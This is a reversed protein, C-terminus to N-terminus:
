GISPKRDVKGLKDAWNEPWRKYYNRWFTKSGHEYSYSSLINMTISPIGIIILYLPGFIKSQICHGYEHKPTDIDTYLDSLIIFDGLSVGWLINNGRFIPVGNIQSREVLGKTLILFLALLNQPLQWIFLLIRLFINM